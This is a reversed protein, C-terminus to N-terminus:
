ILFGAFRNMIFAEVNGVDERLLKLADKNAVSLSLLKFGEDYIVTFSSKAVLEGNHHINIFGEHTRIGGLCHCAFPRSGFGYKYHTSASM